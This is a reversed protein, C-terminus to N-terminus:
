VSDKSLEERSFRSKKNPPRPNLKHNEMVGNDSAVIKINGSYMLSLSMEREGEFDTPLQTM